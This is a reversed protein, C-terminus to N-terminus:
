SPEEESRHERDWADLRAQYLDRDDEIMRHEFFVRLGTEICIRDIKPPPSERECHERVIEDLVRLMNRPARGSARLLRPELSAYDEFVHDLSEHRGDSYARIRAKLFTKLREDTWEIRYPQIRDTRIGILKAHAEEPLFLKIGLGKSELFRVSTVLPRVLRAILDPQNNVVDIEDVNDVLVFVSPFGLRLVLGVFLDFISQPTAGAFSRSDPTSPAILMLAILLWSVEKGQVKAQEFEFRKGRLYSAIRRYGKGGYRHIRRENPALRDLLAGLRAERGGHDVVPLWRLVFGELLVRDSSTVSPASHHSSALAEVLAAVCAELIRWVHDDLTLSDLKDVPWGSFDTAEVVLPPVDMRRLRQAVMKCLTSKGEGRWGFVFTPRPRKPDGIIEDFYRPPVFARAMRDDMEAARDSFPDASFGWASVIEPRM